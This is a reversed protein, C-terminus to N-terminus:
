SEGENLTPVGFDEYIERSPRRKRGALRKQLAARQEAEVRLMAVLAKAAESASAGEKFLQFLTKGRRIPRRLVRSDGRLDELAFVNSAELLDDIRARNEPTITKGSQWDYIAQRSVGLLKALDTAALVLVERIRAIKEPVKTDALAERVLQLWEFGAFSYGWNGRATVYERTASGGTGVGLFHTFEVDHSLTETSGGTGVSGVGVLIGLPGFRESAPGVSFPVAPNSTSSFVIRRTTASM